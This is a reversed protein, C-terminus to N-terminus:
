PLLLRSWLRLLCHLGLVFIDSSSAIHPSDGGRPGVGWPCFRDSGGTDLSSATQVIPIKGLRDSLGVEMLMHTSVVKRQLLIM